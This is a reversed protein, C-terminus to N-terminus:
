RSRPGIGPSGRGVTGQRNRSSGGNTSSWQVMPSGSCCWHSATGVSHSHSYYICHCHSTNQYLSRQLTNPCPFYTSYTNLNPPKKNLDRKPRNTPQIQFSFYFIKSKPTQTKFFHLYNSKVTLSKYCVYQNTIARIPRFLILSVSHTHFQNYQIFIYSM